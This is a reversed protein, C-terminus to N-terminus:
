RETERVDVIRQSEIASIAAVVEEKPEAIKIVAEWTYPDKPVVVGGLAEIGWGRAAIASVLKALEGRVMPMHVTVRVCPTRGSMLETLHQLLDTESILGLVIGDEVVPLCGIRREVMIHAAEEIPTDPPITVVDVAKIMVDEVTLRSLYRTIEWMDLSGLRGPDVLLTQRTVLGLLRKGDGVIPLHRIDHEGMYRQAEIISMGPEGMPPHRVMYDKVLM